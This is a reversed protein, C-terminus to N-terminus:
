IMVAILAIVAPICSLIGIKEKFILSAVLGALIGTASSIPSYVSVDMKAIIYVNAVSAINSCITNGAISVLRKPNLLVISGRLEEKNKLCAFTFVLAAAALLVVNTLFFFSNKDTVTESMAFSKLVITNACGSATMVLLVLAFRLSGRSKETGAKKGIPTNASRKDLFVFLIAVLMLLIRLLNKFDISESFLLVGILVSCVMGSARSMINANSINVLRYVIFNTILIVAVILAYLVSYILTATNIAIRLGSILFFVISAVFSNVMLVLSYKAVSSQTLINSCLKTFAQGGLGAVATLAFSLIIDM